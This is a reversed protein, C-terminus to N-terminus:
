RMRARVASVFEEFAREDTIWKLLVDNGSATIRVIDGIRDKAKECAEINDYSFSEFSFNWMKKVYFIVRQDTAIFLGNRVRKEGIMKGGTTGQVIAVATEDTALHPRALEWLKDIKAM